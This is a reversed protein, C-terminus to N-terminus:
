AILDDIDYLEEQPVFWSRTRGGHTQRWEDHAKAEAGTMYGHVEYVPSTGTVLVFTDEDRDKTRVILEYHPKSRTRVQIVGVDGGKDFTNVSGDWFLDAVKAFTMEGCAGEIHLNWAGDSAGYRDPLDNRLAEVHRRVGVEAAMQVEYWELKVQVSM